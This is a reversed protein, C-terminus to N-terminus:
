MNAVCMSDSNETDSSESSCLDLEGIKDVSPLALPPFFNTLIACVFIIQHVLCAM